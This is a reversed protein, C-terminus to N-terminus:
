CKNAAQLYRTSPIELDFRFNAYSAIHIRNAEHLHEDNIEGCMKQVVRSEDCWVDDFAPAGDVLFDVSRLTHVVRM